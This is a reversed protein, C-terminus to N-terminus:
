WANNKAREGVKKRKNWSSLRFLSSIGLIIEKRTVEEYVKGMM